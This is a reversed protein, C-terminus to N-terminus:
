AADEVFDYLTAGEGREADLSITKFDVDAWDGRDLDTQQQDILASLETEREADELTLAESSREAGLPVYYAWKARSGVALVREIAGTSSMHDLLGYLRHKSTSGTAAKFYIFLEPSRLPRAAAQLLRVVSRQGDTRLDLPKKARKRYERLVRRRDEPTLEPLKDQRQPVVYGANRMSAIVANGRMPTWGFREAITFIPIDKKWMDEIQAAMDPTLYRRVWVNRYPIDEGWLRMKRIDEAVVEVTVGVDAAIEANPIGQRYMEAVRERRPAVAAKRRANERANAERLRKNVRMHHGFVYRTPEGKYLKDRKCTYKAIPTKEGCGCMCLGTTNRTSLADRAM